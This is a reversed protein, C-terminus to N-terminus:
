FIFNKAVCRVSAGYGKDLSENRILTGKLSMKIGLNDSYVKILWYYGYRIRSSLEANTADYFGSSIMNAFLHTLFDVLRTDKGYEKYSQTISTKNMGYINRILKQWSGDGEYEVMGWGKPCISDSADGSSLSCM